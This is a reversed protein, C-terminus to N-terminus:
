RICEKEIKHTVFTLNLSAPSVKKECVDQLTITSLFNRTVAELAKWLSHTACKSGDKQCSDPIGAKCRTAKIKQDSAIVIDHVSIEQPTKSLIYGGNNGRVSTVLGAKKLKAFLQELYQLPLNQREAISALSVATDCNRFAIDVMAMVAYQAKTTLKM